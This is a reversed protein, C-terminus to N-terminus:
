TARRQGDHGHRARGAPDAGPVRVALRGVRKLWREGLVVAFASAGYIAAKAFAAMDDAIFGGRFAVGQEGWAAAVAAGILAAVASWSAFGSSGRGGFAGGVLIAMASVALILEPAAMAWRERLPSPLPPDNFGNPFNSAFDAILADVSVATIDTVLSPAVGLLLAGIILPLFTIWERRDM